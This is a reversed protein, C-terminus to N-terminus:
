NNLILRAACVAGGRPRQPIGDLERGVIFANQGDGRQQGDRAVNKVPRHGERWPTHFLM